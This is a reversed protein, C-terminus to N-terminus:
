AYDAWMIKFMLWITKNIYGSYLYLKYKKSRGYEQFGVFFLIANSNFEQKLLSKLYKFIFLFTM